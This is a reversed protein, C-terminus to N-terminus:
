CCRSHWAAAAVVAASQQQQLGTPLLELLRLLLQLISLDDPLYSPAPLKLQSTQVHVSHEALVDAAAAAFVSSGPVFAAAAVAPALHLVASLAPDRGWQLPM